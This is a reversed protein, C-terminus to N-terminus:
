PSPFVVEVKWRKSWKGPMGYSNVARVRWYYRGEESMNALYDYVGPGVVADHEPSRFKKDDDCQIQYTHGGTAPNWAFAITTSTVTSKNAPDSLTPVGPPPPTVMFQWAPM